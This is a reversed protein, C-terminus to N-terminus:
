LREVRWGRRQLNTILADDLDGTSRLFSTRKMALCLLHTPRTMAVYHLKLRSQQHAKAQNGGSESGTLWPLLLELNHRGKKDQWYTELVLTAKHTRGKVSHISGVNIAVERGNDAFRYINDRSKSDVQPSGAAAGGDEWELFAFAETSLDAGILTKAIKQFAPSHTANWTQADPVVRLVAFHTMLAEYLQKIDGANELVELIYRHAHRRQSLTVPGEMMGALRLVGEAIKEVTGFTNGTVQSKAQGAFVYRVLTKPKPDTRAIEADYDSWYHGVYHPFKTNDPTKPPRHIQGVAWFNGDLLERESFSRLLLKAYGPLVKAVDVDDFLFITHPAEQEGSALLIKPGEGKLGFPVIGLPDAFNAITQGFRHSNPLDGKCKEDPFSDTIAGSAGVFNFIAQNADGFRQRLVMEAGKSMFIRHLIVSQEESNDQAEDLFLLPFRSRIVETIGPMKDIMDHAWIFMDDYCHYGESAVEQCVSRVNKYVDTHDAFPFDGARKALQFSADHIRIDSPDIHKKELPFRWKRDLKNWRRLQCIETDIVKIPCGIARLWPIALFENVFAHITGIFHPYSLLIKGVSTSGLKNEVEIRAANTHSLVCIGRTRYKWHRALVALKAVLLTTKGSGPCASVDLPGISKFVTQRPDSGDQGHFAIKSLGLLETAWGIDDDTITPAEFGSSDRM